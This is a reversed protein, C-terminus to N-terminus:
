SRPAPASQVDPTAIHEPLFGLGVVRSAFRRLLPALLALLKRTPWSFTLAKQSTTDGFTRRHIFVQIAQMRRVPPERRRQVRALAAEDLPVRRRLDAALLNATAVADQIAYNIGVGGAPSMAHAADGICLLGSRQWRRLRNIQVTLLKVQEFSALEGLPDRLFPAVAAIADRFAPLGQRQIDGFSGKRIIYGCQYYDGRPITVLIRGDRVRGLSPVPEDAGLGLRFWLVDIPIGHDIRELGAREVVTSHRGDCAVVLDARVTLEGETTRARVGVIRGGEEILDVVEAQLRLEFGPYRRAQGALFNLLDWQPMLAIFKCHTPLHSFDPGALENGELSLFIRRLEQHPLRLLEDLLGLEYMVELTSPHVTDGRFDRFFDAHKELVVVPVGARALLQGLMMGAPGGGAICCTTDIQRPSEM